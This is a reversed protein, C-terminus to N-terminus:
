QKLRLHGTDDESAFAADILADIAKRGKELDGPSLLGEITSRLQNRPMVRLLVAAREVLAGDVAEEGTIVQPKSTEYRALREVVGTAHFEDARETRGRVESAGGVRLQRTRM